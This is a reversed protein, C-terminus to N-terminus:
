CGIPVPVILLISNPLRCDQCIISPSMPHLDSRLSSTSFFCCYHYHLRAKAPRFFHVPPPAFIFHRRSSFDTTTTSILRSKLHTYHYQTRKFSVFVLQPHLMTRAFQSSSMGNSLHVLTLATSIRMHRHNDNWRRNKFCALTTKCVPASLAPNPSCHYSVKTFHLDTGAPCFHLCCPNGPLKLLM